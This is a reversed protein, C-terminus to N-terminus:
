DWSAITSDGALIRDGVGFSFFIFLYIIYFAALLVISYLFVVM